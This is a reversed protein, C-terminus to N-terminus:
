DSSELLSDVFMALSAYTDVQRGETAFSDRTTIGNGTLVLIPRAGAAIAAQIDRESDGVVPVDALDVGYHDALEFFMGPAPKRCRCGADPLHPCYQVRDIKGGASEVLSLMKQHIEALMDESFLKRGVGSQNTAVAVTFGAATLRAIAELSGEIPLWESPCKIFEVSEHNIVGDRDLVVLRTM